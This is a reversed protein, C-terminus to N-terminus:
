LEYRGLGSGFKGIKNFGLGSYAGQQNIYTPQDLSPM